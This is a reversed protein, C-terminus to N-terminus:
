LTKGGITHLGFNGYPIEYEIKQSKEISSVKFIQGLFSNKEKRKM